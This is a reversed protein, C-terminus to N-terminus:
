DDCYQGNIEELMEESQITMTILDNGSVYNISIPYVIEFEDDCDVNNCDNDLFWQELYELLSEENDSNFVVGNPDEISIPFVVEGCTHDYFIDEGDGFDTDNGNDDEGNDDQDDICYEELFEGLEEESYIILTQLQDTTESFYGVTLPFVFVLEFVQNSNPNNNYWSEIYNNLSDENEFSLNEGEPSEITIPYVLAVCNFESWNEEDDNIDEDDECMEFYMELEEYNSIEVLDESEVGNENEYYFIINIPFNIEPLNDEEGMEYYEEIGEYLEEENSITVVTGDFLNVSIPFEVDFCMNQDWEEYESDFDNSLFEGDNNFYVNILSSLSMLTRTGGRSMTLEYGLNPAHFVSQVIAFNFTESIFSQSIDPMDNISIEQKDEASKILEILELDSLEAFQDIPESNNSCGIIFFSLLLTYIYKM